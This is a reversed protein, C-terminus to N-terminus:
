HVMNTLNTTPYCPKMHVLQDPNLHVFTTDLLHCGHSCTLHLMGFKEALIPNTLSERLM